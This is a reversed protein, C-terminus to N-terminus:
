VAEINSRQTLELRSWTKRIHEHLRMTHERVQLAAEDPDREELAEIIEAHDVVSRSVRDDEQLARLRVASMHLFLGEAMKKLLSCRSIELIRLHFRINYDSYESIRTKSQEDNYKSAIKRLSAIEADTAREAALRAAMSELAAWAVIMELVEEQSKRLVFIGKRPVVSVLGEAELRAIADRLPTRSVNLQDALSREDLRLDTDASYIDMETIADKLREYVHDRLSFNTKVPQLKM